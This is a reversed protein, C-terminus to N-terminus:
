SLIMSALLVRSELVAAVEMVNYFVYVVIFLLSIRFFVCFRRLFPMAVLVCVFVFLQLLRTWVSHSYYDLSAFHMIISYLVFPLLSVCLLPWLVRFVCMTVCFSMRAVYVRTFVGVSRRICDFWCWFILVLVYYLLFFCPSCSFDVVCM